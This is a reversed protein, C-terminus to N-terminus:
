KGFLDLNAIVTKATRKSTHKEKLEAPVKMMRDASAPSLSAM